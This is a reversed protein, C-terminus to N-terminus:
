CPILMMGNVVFKDSNITKTLTKVEEFIPNGEEDVGTENQSVSYVEVKDISAVANQLDSEKLSPYFVLTTAEKPWNMKMCTLDSFIDGIKNSWFSKFENNVFFGFM